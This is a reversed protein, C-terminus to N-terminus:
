DTSRDWTIRICPEEKHTTNVVMYGMERLSKIDSDPLELKTYISYKGNSVAEKIEQALLVQRHITSIREAENANEIFNHM